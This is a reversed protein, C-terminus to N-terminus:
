VYGTIEGTKILQAKDENRRKIEVSNDKLTRESVVMRIPCGILDADAFKEGASEGERDDYLVEAGIKELDGYIKDAEKNKADLVILHIKFPSVTEPWIIGNKDNHIEVITAMLRSVGIGYSGMVVPKKNGNKDPYSLGFAESYKTGLPFINGVEISKEFSISDSEECKPCQDTDPNIFTNLERNEAYPCNKCVMISDEGMPSIVQFEHTNSITFPGGGALTYITKLGCREFIGSYANKVEDYYRFLDEESEHFSYLDKMLFERGRLLGSRARPENRFKTQFQYVAKPLDKYSNIFKPAMSTLIDEHSWGLVFGPKSEGKGSVEFGIEVDWRGTADWYKKEVLAPMFIEQGDIANMEERIIGIIKEMVRWGLPLFTYIGASNKFIFGGRTLLKANTSEEDKSSERLTKTFLKSLRLNNLYAM